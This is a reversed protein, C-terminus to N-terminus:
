VRMALINIAGYLHNNSHTWQILRSYLPLKKSDHIFIMCYVLAISYIRNTVRIYTEGKTGRPSCFNMNNKSLGIHMEINFGKLPYKSAEWM